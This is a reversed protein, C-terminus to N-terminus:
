RLLRSLGSLNSAGKRTSTKRASSSDQRCSPALWNTSSSHKAAKRSRICNHDEPLRHRLCHETRCSGCRVLSGPLSKTSCRKLSCSQTRVSSIQKCGKQIHEDVVINAELGLRVPLIRSCLPCPVTTAQKPQISCDHATQSRHDLCTVLSCYQCTFPL